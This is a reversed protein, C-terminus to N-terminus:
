VRSAVLTEAERATPGARRELTAIQSRQVTIPQRQLSSRRVPATPSRQVPTVTPRPAPRGAQVPAGGVPTVVPAGSAVIPTGTGGVVTTMVVPRQAPRVPEPRPPRPERTAYRIIGAITVVIIIFLIFLGIYYLFSFPGNTTNYNQQDAFQMGNFLLTNSVINTVIQKSICSQAALVDNRITVNAPQTVNCLVINVGNSTILQSSCETFANNSITNTIQESFNNITQQDQVNIGFAFGLWAQENQNLSQVYQTTADTIESKVQDIVQQLTQADLQVTVNNSVTVNIGDVFCPRGCAKLDCASLFVTNVTLTSNNLRTTASATLQNIVALYGNTIDKSIQQSFSLGMRNRRPPMRLVGIPTNM